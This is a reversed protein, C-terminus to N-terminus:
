VKECNDMVVGVSFKLRLGRHVKTFDGLLVEPPIPKGTVKMVYSQASSLQGKLSQIERGSPFFQLHSSINRSVSM